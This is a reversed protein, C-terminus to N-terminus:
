SIRGRLPSVRRLDKTHSVAPRGAERETALADVERELRDAYRLRLREADTTSLSTVGDFERAVPDYDTPDFGMAELYGGVAPSEIGSDMATRVHRGLRDFEPITVREGAIGPRHGIELGRDVVRDMADRVDRVLQLTEVPLTVDPARWEITGFTERLRIPTWLSDEPAFHDDFTAPDVDTALAQRRFRDFTRDIRDEWEDVSGAYPWLRGLEPHDGYCGRRYIASRACGAVYEGRDHSSSAVLAFAPDLATLLNLQDTESGSIQDIHLHTGACRTANGFEEGLVRRQIRTRPCESTDISEACLPTALPVLRRDEEHAVALVECLRETVEAQLEAVDDCPETVVELMPDASEADIADIREIVPQAPALAGTTDVTWYELELSLQM